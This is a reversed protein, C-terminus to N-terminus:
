AVGLVLTNEDEEIVFGSISKGDGTVVVVTEYGKTIEESPWVISKIIEEKSYRKGIDSLDPGFANGSKGINHCTACVREYVAEGRRAAGGSSRVLKRLARTQAIQPSDPDMVINLPRGVARGPDVAILYDAFHQKAATSADSLFTGSRESQAWAPELAHLTHELTYEVWYDVKKDVAM